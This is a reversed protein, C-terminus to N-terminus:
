PRPPFIGNLCFIYNIVLYPQMTSVQFPVSGGTNNTTIPAGTLPVNITSSAPTVTVPWKTTGDATGYAKIPTGAQQQLQAPVVSSTPTGTSAANASVGLSGSFSPLNATVNGGGLQGTHNHSPLNNLTLSVTQQVVGAKTGIPMVGFGGGGTLDQGVPVRGRLDPVAFNNTGNGGYTTGILAFVAQYQSLPLLSGDCNIWGQPAWNMSWPLITGIFADM